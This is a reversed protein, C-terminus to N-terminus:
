YEYQLNLISIFNLLEQHTETMLEYKEKADYVVTQVKDIHDVIVSLTLNYNKFYPNLYNLIQRTHHQVQDQILENSVPIILEHEKIIPKTHKMINYIAAVNHFVDEVLNLWHKELLIEPQEFISASVEENIKKKKTDYQENDMSEADNDLNKIEVSSEEIEETHNQEDLIESSNPINQTLGKISITQQVVKPKVFSQKSVQPQILTNFDTINEGGHNGSTIKCKISFILM